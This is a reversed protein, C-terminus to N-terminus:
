VQEAPYWWSPAPWQTTFASQGVSWNVSALPIQTAM